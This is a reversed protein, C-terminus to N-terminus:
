KTTGWYANFSTHANEFLFAKLKECTEFVHPTLTHDTNGRRDLRLAVSKGQSLAQRKIAENNHIDSPAAQM